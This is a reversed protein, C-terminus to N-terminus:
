DGPGWNWESLDPEASRPKAEAVLARVELLVLGASPLAVFGFIGLEIGVTRVLAGLKPVTLTVRGVVREAPVPEPDANANADGKTRVYTEGNRETVGVVRHTVVTSAPLGSNPLPRFSVVDGTEIDDAAVDSVFVADGERITPSMSRGTEAYSHSAGVFEPVAFVLFPTAFGLLVFAAVIRRNRSVPLTGGM